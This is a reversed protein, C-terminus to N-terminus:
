EEKEEKWKTVSEKATGEIFLSSNYLHNNQVVGEDLLSESMNKTASFVTCHLIKPKWGSKSTVRKNEKGTREELRRLWIQVNKMRLENSIPKIQQQTGEASFM